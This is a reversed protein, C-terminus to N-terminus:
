GETTYEMIINFKDITLYNYSWHGYFVGGVIANAGTSEGNYLVLSNAGDTGKMWKMIIDVLAKGNSSSLDINFTTTSGSNAGGPVYNAAPQLKGVLVPGGIKNVHPNYNISDPQSQTIKNLGLYLDRKASHWGSGDCRHVVITLKKIEKVKSASPISDRMLSGFGIWGINERNVSSLDDGGDQIKDVGYFGQAAKGYDASRWGWPSPTSSWGRRYRYANFDKGVLTIARDVETPPYIQEWQRNENFAYVKPVNNLNPAEIMSNSSQMKTRIDLNDNANKWGEPYRIFVGYKSSM